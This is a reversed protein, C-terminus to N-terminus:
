PSRPHDLLELLLDAVEGTDTAALEQLSGAGRGLVVGAFAAVLLEARLQPRDRGEAEFRERLPAVMRRHLEASAAEQVHGDDHRRVAAQLVPGAGRRGVRDLLGAARGPVLLDDPVAAATEARLSAIYLGTKNGYHRAILAPDVGAREGIERVTAREFGREAFLETAAALLAERSRAGDRRRLPTVTGM